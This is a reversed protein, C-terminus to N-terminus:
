LLGMKQMYQRMESMEGLISRKEDEARQREREKEEKAKEIM